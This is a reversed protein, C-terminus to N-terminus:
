VLAFFGCTPNDAGVQYQVAKGRKWQNGMPVASPWFISCISLSAVRVLGNLDGFCLISALTSTNVTVDCLEVIRRAKAIFVSRYM